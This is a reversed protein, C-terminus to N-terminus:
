NRRPSKIDISDVEEISLNDDGVSHSQSQVDSSVPMTSETEPIVATSNKSSVGISRDPLLAVAALLCAAISTVVDHDVHSSFRFDACRRNTTRCRDDASDGSNIAIRCLVPHWRQQFRKRFFDRLLQDMQEDGPIMGQSGRHAPSNTMKFGENLWFRLSDGGRRSLRM